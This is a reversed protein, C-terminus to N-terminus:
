FTFNFRASQNAWGTNYPDIFELSDVQDITGQEPLTASPTKLNALIGNSGNGGSLRSNASTTDVDYGYREQHERVDDKFQERAYIGDAMEAIPGAFPAAMSLAKAATQSGNKLAAYAGFAQAGGTLNGIFGNSELQNDLTSRVDSEWNSIEGSFASRVANIGSEALESGLGGFPMSAMKSFAKVGLDTANRDLADDIDRALDTDTYYRDPNQTLQSKTFGMKEQMATPSQFDVSKNLAGVGYSDSQADDNLSVSDLGMAGMGTDAKFSSLLGGSSALNGDTLSENARALSEKALQEQREQAEALQRAKRAAKAEAEAKAKAEVEAKAKAEAAAKEAAKREAKSNSDNNNKGGYQYNNLSDAGFTNSGEKSGGGKRDGGFNGGGGIGGDSGAGGQRSPGGEYRM